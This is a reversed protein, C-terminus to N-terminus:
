ARMADSSPATRRTATRTEPTLWNIKAEVVEIKAKPREVSFKVPFKEIKQRMVTLANSRITV